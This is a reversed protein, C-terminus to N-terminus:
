VFAVYYALFMFIGQSPDGLSPARRCSSAGCQLCQVGIGAYCFTFLLMDCYIDLVVPTMCDLCFLQSSREHVNCIVMERAYVSAKHEMEAHVEDFHERCFHLSCEFCSRKARAVCGDDYCCLPKDDLPLM